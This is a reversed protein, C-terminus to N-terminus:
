ELYGLDRLRANVLAMEEETMLAADAEPGAPRGQRLAAIEDLM